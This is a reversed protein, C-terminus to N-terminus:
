REIRLTQEVPQATKVLPEIGSGFQWAVIKIELPLKANVPLEAVKVKHGTIVVPGHTEHYEVPLGSSATAKLEVEGGVKLVEPPPFTIQNDQGKAFGKFWRGLMGVQETYRYENDGVSYAMFTIREIVTAPAVNEYRMRFTAPGTAVVGGAAHKVLIPAQSHGAPKGAFGNWKREPYVDGYAPHVEFTSPGVWKSITLTYRAGADISHKDLWKIFQDKKGFGAHYAVTAEAMEKDFHWNTASKDGKYDACAAPPFEGPAKILLNTLWGSRADITKLKPPKGDTSTWTEPIRAAAAKRLFLALYKANRDSWAFHGAGPEIVISALNGEDAKRFSAVAQCIGEWSETGDEKRHTGGFEDFEGVMMLCPVGPPVAPVKVGVVKGDQDREHEAMPAGGRYQMLGFCRDAMQMALAKSPPGGASHGAFFFPAASLEDHGSLRAFQEMLKQIEEPTGHGAKSFVIALQQETCAKRIELDKSWEREALTINSFLVGRIRKAEPPLWMYIPASRPRGQKDVGQDRLVMYQFVAASAQSTLLALVLGALSLRKM